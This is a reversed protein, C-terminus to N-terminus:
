ASVAILDLVGSNRCSTWFKKVYQESLKSENLATRVIRYSISTIRKRLMTVVGKCGFILIVVARATVTSHGVFSGPPIFVTKAGVQVTQIM